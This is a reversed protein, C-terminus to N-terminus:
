HLNRRLLTGFAREYLAEPVGYAWGAYLELQERDLITVITRESRILSNGELIHLATTVGARRVGLMLSLFEHTIPFKPGTRDGAMLIWRALRRDLKARGNTLATQMAQVVFTHDYKDLMASIAPSARRAERLHGARIRRGDGPIQIFIENPCPLDALIAGVGTAGERGILCAEVRAKGSIAVASAVGSSMFYCFEVNHGPQHLPFKLPLTIDELHPELRALDAGSLLTLLQNSPTAMADM